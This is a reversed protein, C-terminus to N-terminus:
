FRFLLYLGSGIVLPTIRRYGYEGRPEEGEHHLDIKFLSAAAIRAQVSLHRHLRLDLGVATSPGIKMYEAYRWESEDEVVPGWGLHVYSSDLRYTERNEIQFVENYAVVVQLAILPRLRGRGFTWEHGLDLQHVREYWGSTSRTALSDRVTWNDNIYEEKWFGYGMYCSREEEYMFSGRLSLGDSNEFEDILRYTPLFVEGGVAFRPMGPGGYYTSDQAVASHLVICLALSLNIRGGLKMAHLLATVPHYQGTDLM